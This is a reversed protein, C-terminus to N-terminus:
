TTLPSYAYESFDAYGQGAASADNCRIGFGVATPRWTTLDITGVAGTWTHLFLYADDSETGGKVYLSISDNTFVLKVTFDNWIQAWKGSNILTLKADEDLYGNSSPDGPVRISGSSRIAMLMGTGNAGKLYVGTDMKYNTSDYATYSPKVRVTFSFDNLGNEDQMIYGRSNGNGSTPMTYRYTQAAVMTVTSANSPDNCDFVPRTSFETINQNEVSAGDVVVGKRFGEQVGDTVFIDYTGDPLSISYKGDKVAAGVFQAGGVDTAVVSAGDPLAVSGSVTYEPINLKVFDYESFDCYGKFAEADNNCRIGFGVRTPRWTTLSFTKGAGSVTNTWKHVLAYADDSAEGGKIYLALENHAFTLKIEYDSKISDWNAVSIYDGENILWTSEVRVTGSTRVAVFVNTTGQMYIGTDMSWGGVTEQDPRIRVSTEFNVLGNADQKIFGQSRVDGGPMQYRYVGNDKWEVTGDQTNNTTAYVPKLYVKELNQEAKNEANVEVGKLMGEYEGGTFQLDYTGNWVFVSYEGDVIEGKFRDGTAQDIALVEGNLEAVLGSIENMRNYYAQFRTAGDGQITQELANGENSEDFIYRDSERQYEQAPPIVIKEGVVGNSYTQSHIKESTAADYYEVTYKATATPAYVAYLTINGNVPTSFDYEYGDLEWYLFQHNEKEPADPFAVTSGEEVTQSTIETGGDTDFEVTYSEGSCGCFLFFVGLLCSLLAGIFLRKVSKKM